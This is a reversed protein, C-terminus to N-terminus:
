GDGRSRARSKSGQNVRRRVTPIPTKTAAGGPAGAGVDAATCSAEVSDANIGNLGNASSM